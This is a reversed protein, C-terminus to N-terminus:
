MVGNLREGTNKAVEWMYEVLMLVDDTTQWDVDVTDREVGGNKRTDEQLQWQISAPAERRQGSGRHLTVKEGCNVSLDWDVLQCVRRAADGFDFHMCNARRRVDCHMIKARHAFSLNQMLQVYDTQSIDEVLEKGVHMILYQEGAGETFHPPVPLRGTQFWGDAAPLTTVKRV